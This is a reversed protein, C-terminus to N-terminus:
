WWARLLACVVSRVYDCRSSLDPCIGASSTLAVSAVIGCTTRWASPRPAACCSTSGCSRAHIFVRVLSLGLFLALWCLTTSPCTLVQHWLAPRGHTRWRWMHCRRMAVPHCVLFRLSARRQTTHIGFWSVLVVRLSRSFSPVRMAGIVHPRRTATPTARLTRSHHSTTSDLAYPMIARRATATTMTAIKRLTLPNSGRTRKREARGRWGRRTPAPTHLHCLVKCVVLVTADM